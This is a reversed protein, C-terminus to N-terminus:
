FNPFTNNNQKNQQRCHFTRWCTNEVYLLRNIVNNQFEKM